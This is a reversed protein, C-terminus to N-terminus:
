PQLQAANGAGLPLILQGTQASYIEVMPNSDQIDMYHVAGILSGTRDMSLNYFMGPIILGESGDLRLMSIQPGALVQGMTPSNYDCDVVIGSVLLADSAPSWAYDLGVQYREQGPVVASQLSPSILERRNGGDTDSVYYNSPSACASLHM